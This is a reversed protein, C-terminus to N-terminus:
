LTTPETILARALALRKKMGQSFTRARANGSDRLGVSDLLELPRAKSLRGIRPYYGAHRVLVDVARAEYSFTPNEPVWGVRACAIDKERGIEHGDIYIKGATPIAAACSIRILTTKGAGNLGVLGVVEGERVDLSVNDLARAKLGRFSKSINECTLM